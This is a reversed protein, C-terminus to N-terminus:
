RNGGGGQMMRAYERFQGALRDHERRERILRERILHDMQRREQEQRAPLDSPVVRPSRDAPLPGDAAQPRSVELPQHAEPPQPAAEGSSAKERVASQEPMRRPVEGEGPATEQRDRARPSTEAPMEAPWDPSSAERRDDEASPPAAKAVSVEPAPRPVHEERTEAHSFATQDPASEGRTETEKATEKAFPPSKQEERRELDPRRETFHPKSDGPAPWRSEPPSMVKHAEPAAPPTGSFGAPHKAKIRDGLYPKGKGGSFDPPATRKPPLRLSEERKEERQRRDGGFLRSLLGPSNKRKEYAEIQSLVQDVSARKLSREILRAVPGSFPFDSPLKVLSEGIIQGTMCMYMWTGWDIAPELATFDRVGCFFVKLEGDETLGLNRPDLLLYMPLPRSNLMKELRLLERTLRVTEEESWPQMQLIEDLHTLNVYPRIFVISRDETYVEAFPLVLPHNLSRYQQIVLSKTAKKLKTWQLYFRENEDTRAVALEGDLFAQASEIVYRDRYRQGVTFFSSVEEAEEDFLRWKGIVFNAAMLM